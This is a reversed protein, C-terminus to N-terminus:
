AQLTKKWTPLEAVRPVFVVKTPVIRASVDIVAWVPVVTLPRSSARLPATVRSLLTMVLDVQEVAVVVVVEVLLVVLDGVLM